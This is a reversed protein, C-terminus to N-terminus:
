RVQLLIHCAVCTICRVLHLPMGYHSFVIAFFVLYVFLHLLDTTLDLYFVCLGKATWRGEAALDVLSMMYKIGYRPLLVHTSPHAISPKFPVCLAYCKCVLSLTYCACRVALSLLAFRNIARGNAVIKANAGTVAGLLCSGALMVVPM